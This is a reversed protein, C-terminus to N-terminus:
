ATPRLHHSPETTRTSGISTNFANVGRVTVRRENREVDSSNLGVDGSEGEM